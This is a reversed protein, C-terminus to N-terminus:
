EYRLAVLPDVETARRAPVYTAMLAVAALLLSVGAFTAPDTAHIGFLMSALLRSLAAAAVLGGGIGVLTMLLTEGVVMKIVNRGTAGLAMRVGIEHTRQTVTFSTVSYIGVAALALALTAFLGLLLMNFRRAALSTALKQDLTELDYIPQDKDIAGVESRVAPALLGPDGHTRMAVYAFERAELQAMPVYIEPGADTDLGGHRVDGVEGVITTWQDGSPGFKLRKGVANQNPFFHRALNQNIIAVREAHEADHDNFARGDVLTMGLVHFFEPSVVVQSIVPDQGPMAPPRGEVQLGLLMTTFGTLPLSDTIATSEVGPLARLQTQLQDYFAARAQPQAYRSGTLNLSFALVRGPQFGPDVSILARFSRILLGAGILLVLALALESAVLVSRVRHRRRSTTASHAGEKLSEELDPRSAGM